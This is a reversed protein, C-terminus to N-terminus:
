GMKKGALTRRREICCSPPSVSTQPQPLGLKSSLCVSHYEKYTRVKHQLATAFKNIHIQFIHLFAYINKQLLFDYTIYLNKDTCM